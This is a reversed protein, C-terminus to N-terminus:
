EEHGLVMWHSSSPGTKSPFQQLIKRSDKGGDFLQPPTKASWYLSLAPCVEVPRPVILTGFETAHAPSFHLFTAARTKSHLNQLYLLALAEACHGFHVQFGALEQPSVGIIELQELFGQLNEQQLRLADHKLAGSLSPFVAAPIFNTKPAPDATSLIPSTVTTATATPYAASTVATRVYVICATSPGDDGYANFHEKAAIDVWKSYTALMKLHMADKQLPTEKGTYPYPDTETIILGMASYFDSIRMKLGHIGAVTIYELEPSLHANYATKAKMSRSTKSHHRGEEKESRYLSAPNPAVRLLLKRNSSRDPGGLLRPVTRVESGLDPWRGHFKDWSEESRPEGSGPNQGFWTHISIRRAAPYQYHIPPGGSAPAYM